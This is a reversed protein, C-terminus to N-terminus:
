EYKCELIDFFSQPFDSDLFQLNDTNPDELWATYMGNSEMFIKYKEAANDIQKEGLRWLDPCAQSTFAKIRFQPIERNLFVIVPLCIPENQWECFFDVQKQSGHVESVNFNKAFEVAKAYFVMQLYVKYSYFYKTVFSEVSGSRSKIFTKLDLIQTLKLYDIRSKCKIGNYEWLISVEPFGNKLVDNYFLQGKQELYKGITEMKKFEEHSIFPLTQLNKWLIFDKSNKNLSEIEAPIVKYKGFFGKRDLFYAHYAKGAAMFKNEKEQKLPNFNSKFWFETPSDLILKIESSSLRPEAFYEDESLNFYIGNDM